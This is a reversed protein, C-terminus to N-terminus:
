VKSNCKALKDADFPQDSVGYASLAGAQRELGHCSRISDPDKPESVLACSSGECRWLNGNAIFEKKGSLPQVLTATYRGSQASAAVSVLVLAAAILRQNRM